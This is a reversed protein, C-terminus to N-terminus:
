SRAEGTLTRILNKLKRKEADELAKSIVRSVTSVAVSGYVGRSTIANAIETLLVGPAYMRLIEPNRRKRIRHKFSKDLLDLVTQANGPNVGIVSCLDSIQVNPAKGNKESAVRQRRVTRWLLHNKRVQVLSHSSLREDSKVDSQDLAKDVTEPTLGKAIQRLAHAISEPDSPDVHITITKSPTYNANKYRSTM